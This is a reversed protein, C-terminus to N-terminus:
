LKLLSVLLGLVQAMLSSELNVSTPQHEPYQQQYQQQPQQYQIKSQEESHQFQAGSKTSDHSQIRSQDESHQQQPYQQQYQAGSKTSDHDRLRSQDEAHQPERASRDGGNGSSGGGQAGFGQCEEQHEQCYAACENPSQCGGPGGGGGQHPPELKQCEEPNEETGCRIPGGPGGGGPPAFDKCAEFNNVCFNACEEQSKCGGPGSFNGGGPFEGQGSGPFGGEDGQGGFSGAFDQFCSQMQDGLNRDFVPEGALIKNLKEEGIADKFCKVVEPPMKDFQERFQKMGEQMQKLDEEKMLGHENAWNFCEEQNAECYAECQAKSRCNGPGKGGTKRIMEQEEESLFGAKVAFAICEDIHEDGACYAECQERNRCDGPTEGKQMFEMFKRAQALEEGEIFGAEEAFALCEEINEPNNCYVECSAKNTCAAPPKIGKALAQQFKKAEILEEETLTDNTEAFAICEDLHDTTNCYTECSARSNCGGPGGDIKKFKELDLLEDDTIFGYKKAFALCVNIHSQDDCYTRCEEEDGCNGLDTVPYQIDELSETPEPEEEPEPVKETISAEATGELKGDVYLTMAGSDNRTAVVHHWTKASIPTSIIGRPEGDLGTTEGTFFELNGGGLRLWYGAGAGNSPYDSKRIINNVGEKGDWNFWSELSFPGTGFNLSAPNKMSIYGNVGNFKFASRVKGPVVTVGGSITGIIAVENGGGGSASDSVTTGSVTDGNWWAILDSQLEGCSLAGVVDPVVFCQGASGAKFITKVDAASLAKKYILVEDILGSFLETVGFRDNWSGLTFPANSTTDAIFVKAPAVEKKTPKPAPALKPDIPAPATKKEEPEPTIVRGKTIGGEPPLLELELVNKKCDTITAIMSPTFDEPEIFLIDKSNFITPCGPVGGGYSSKGPPQLSFESIGDPDSIALTFLSNEDKKLSVTSNRSPTAGYAIVFSVLFSLALVVFALFRKNSDLHTRM